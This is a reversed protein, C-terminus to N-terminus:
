NAFLNGYLNSGNWTQGYTYFAFGSTLDCFASESNSFDNINTVGM